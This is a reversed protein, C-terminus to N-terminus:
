GYVQKKLESKTRYKSLTQKMNDPSGLWNFRECGDLEGCQSCLEFGKEHACSRIVCDPPGGGQECGQCFAYRTLWSLTRLTAQWDLESGEPVASAWEKVGSMDIFEATKKAYESMTGNGLFCTGCTIGCPGAQEKVNIPSSM